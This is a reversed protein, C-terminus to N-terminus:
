RPPSGVRYLNGSPDVLAFERLGYDTDVPGMLRSGTSADHPVAIAEWEAHLADADPVRLYCSFDTTLPDVDPKSFFHLEIGGRAVILYDWVTYSTGTEEFGLRRLFALTEGLDRSPLIPVASETL